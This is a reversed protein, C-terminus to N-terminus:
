LRPSGVATCLAESGGPAGPGRSSRTQRQPFAAQCLRKWYSTTGMPLGRHESVRGKEVPVGLGKASRQDEGKEGGGVFSVPPGPIGDLPMSLCEKPLDTRNVPGSMSQRERWEGARRWVWAESRGFKAVHDASDNNSVASAERWQEQGAGTDSAFVTRTYMTCCWLEMCGCM